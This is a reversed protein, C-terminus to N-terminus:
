RPPLLAAPGTHLLLQWVVVVTGLPTVWWAFRYLRGGQLWRLLVWLAALGVQFSVAAGILLAQPTLSGMSEHRLKLSELLGAGAIAPIALLFSFTAAEDRRLGVGLAAVITSGSRSIGPLVAVAQFLGILLAKAYSLERCALEGTQHGASWLLMAGTFFFMWGVCLPSEFASEVWPKCLVGVLGAPVSAALVLGIVRRDRGLVELIRRRYFVLISLLTGLHLVINVALKDHLPYGLQDFVAQGVVVHGSSSIPLFEGIGQILALFLIELLAM